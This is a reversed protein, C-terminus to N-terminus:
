GVGVIVSRSCGLPGGVLWARNVEFVRIVEHENPFHFSEASQPISLSIQHGGETWTLVRGCVGPHVWVGRLIFRTCVILKTM